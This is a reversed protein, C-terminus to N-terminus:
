LSERQGHMERKMGTKEDKKLTFIIPFIHSERGVLISFLFIFFSAVCISPLKPLEIQAFEIGGSGLCAVRWGWGASAEKNQRGRPARQFTSGPWASPCSLFRQHM